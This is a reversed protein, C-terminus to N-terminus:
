HVPKNPKNYHERNNVVLRNGYDRRQIKQTPNTGRVPVKKRGVPM